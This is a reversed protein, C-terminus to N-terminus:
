ACYVAVKDWEAKFTGSLQQGAETILDFEGEVPSGQKVRWFFVTGTLEVSHSYRLLFTVSGVRMTEDPFSFRAPLKIEPEQWISINIYSGPEYPISVTFAPGDWPACDRNITASFVQAPQQNELTYFFWIGGLAILVLVMLVTFATPTKTM